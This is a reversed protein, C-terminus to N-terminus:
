LHSQRQYNHLDMHIRMRGQKSYGERERMSM